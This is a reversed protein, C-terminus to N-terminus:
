ERSEWGKKKEERSGEGREEKEEGMIGGGVGSDGMGEKKEERSGEGGGGGVEKGYEWWRNRVRREGKKRRM